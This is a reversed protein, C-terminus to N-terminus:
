RWHWKVLLAALVPPLFIVLFIPLEEMVSYGANNVGIWMNAAAILCWLVIFLPVAIAAAGAITPKFGRVIALCLMLLVFGAIVFIATRM